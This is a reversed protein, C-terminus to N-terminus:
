PLPVEWGRQASKRQSWRRGCPYGERRGDPRPRLRWDSTLCVLGASDGRASRSVCLGLHPRHLQGRAPCLWAGEVLVRSDGGWIGVEKAQWEPWLPKHLVQTSARPERHGLRHSERGRDPSCLARHPRLPYLLPGSASWAPVGHGQPAAGSPVDRAKNGGEQPCLAGRGSTVEGLSRPRRLNRGQFRKSPTRTWLRRQEM